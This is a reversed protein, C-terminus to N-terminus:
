PAKQRRLEELRLGAEKAAASSPHKKIIENYLQTAHELNHQKEEFRATDLLQAAQKEGSSCGCWLPTSILLALFLFRM